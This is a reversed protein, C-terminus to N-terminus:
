AATVNVGRQRSASTRGDALRVTLAVVVAGAPQPGMVWPHDYSNTPNPTMRQWSYQDIGEAPTSLSGDCTIEDATTPNAPTFTFDATPDPIPTRRPAYASPYGRPRGRAGSYTPPPGRM